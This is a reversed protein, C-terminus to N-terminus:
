TSSVAVSEEDAVAVADVVFKGAGGAVIWTAPTVPATAGVVIGPVALKVQASPAPLRDEVPQISNLRLPPTVQSVAEVGTVLPAVTVVRQFSTDPEPRQPSAASAVVIVPVRVSPVFVLVKERRRSLTGVANVNKGAVSVVVGFVTVLALGVNVTAPILAGAFIQPANVVVPDRGSYETSPPAVHTAMGVAGPVSVTLSPCATTIRNVVPAAAAVSTKVRFTPAETVAFCLLVNVTTTLVALKGSVVNEGAPAGLALGALMLVAVSLPVALAVHASPVVENVEVPPIWNWTFPPPYPAPGVDILSVSLM